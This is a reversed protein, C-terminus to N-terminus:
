AQEVAGRDPLAVLLEGGGGALQKGVEPLHLLVEASQVARRAFADGRPLAALALQQGLEDVAAAHDVGGVLAAAELGEVVQQQGGRALLLQRHQQVAHGTDLLDAGVAAQAGDVVAPGLGGLAGLVRDAADGLLQAAEGVVLHPQLVAAHQVQHALDLRGGQM